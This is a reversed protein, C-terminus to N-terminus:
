LSAGLESQENTQLARQFMVNRYTFHLYNIKVHTAERYTKGKRVSQSVEELLLITYWKILIYYSIIHLM